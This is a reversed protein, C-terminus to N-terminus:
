SFTATLSRVADHLSRNANSQCDGEGPSVTAARTSRIVSSSRQLLFGIIIYHHDGDDGKDYFSMPYLINLVQGYSCACAGKGALRSSM